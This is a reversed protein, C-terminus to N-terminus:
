PDQGKKACARLTQRHLVPISRQALVTPRRQRSRLTPDVRTPTSSTIPLSSSSRNRRWSMPATRRRSTISSAAPSSRRPGSRARTRKLRESYVVKGTAAEQCYVVRGFREGTSHGEHYIPSGVNLGQQPWLEHTKTVDGQRRRSRWRHAGAASPMSSATTRSWAPCVYRHVGERAVAGQGHRSRRRGCSGSRQRRAGADEGADDGRAAHELRRQHPRV